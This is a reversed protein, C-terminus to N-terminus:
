VWQQMRDAYYHLNINSPKVVAAGLAHYVAALGWLWLSGVAWRNADLYQEKIKQM